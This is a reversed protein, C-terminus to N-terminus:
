SAAAPSLLGSAGHSDTCYNNFHKLNLNTTGAGVFGEGSATGSVVIGYRNDEVHGTAAVDTAGICTTANTAENSITNRKIMCQTIAASIEIAGATTASGIYQIDNGIVALDAVVAALKVVATTTGGTQRVLNGVFSFQDAGSEVDVAVACDNSAGSGLLIWCGKIMVGAASVSIAETINNAGDLKLRLNEITCNKNNLAWNASAHTWRFTPGSDCRPDGVGLIHTDNVMNDLMTTVAVNESHGSMVLIYDGRGSQCKTLADALTTCVTISQLNGTSTTNGSNDLIAAIRRNPPVLTAWPLRVAHQLGIVPLDFALNISEM